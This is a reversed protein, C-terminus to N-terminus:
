RESSEDQPKNMGLTELFKEHNQIARALKLVLRREAPRVKEIEALLHELKKGALGGTPVNPKEEVGGDGKM